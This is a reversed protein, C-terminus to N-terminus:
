RWGARAEAHVDFLAGWRGHGEVEVLVRVDAPGSTCGVLRAGNAAAIGAAPGCPEEGRSSAQAGALAALDAASQARRHDVVVAAAVACGLGTAVLVGICAVVM